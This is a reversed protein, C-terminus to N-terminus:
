SYAQLSQEVVKSSSDERGLSSAVHGFQPLPWVSRM